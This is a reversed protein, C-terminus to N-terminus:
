PVAGFAGSQWAITLVGAILCYVAFWHLRDAVVLRILLKLCLVGVIFSIVAGLLMPQWSGDIKVDGKLIDILKLLTVGGLVPVAILFSFRAADPRKVGCVLASAITGGSRSVGPLIAIAQFVGIVLAVSPTMERLDVNGRQWKKAIILFCATVLLGFGAYITHDFFEELQDKFALGIVAAPISAVFILLLLRPQHRLALLDPFYVVIISLLTGFHLAIIMTTGSLWEPVTAGTGAMLLAKAIVLHGDSSIPLFEAVGQVVGLVAAYVFDM